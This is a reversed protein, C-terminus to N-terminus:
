PGVQYYTFDDAATDMSLYLNTRVEVSVIVWSPFPPCIATIQTPSDVTYDLAPLPGFKVSTVDVFGTGTIVVQFGGTSPGINPTLGTITLDGGIIIIGTIVTFTTATTDIYTFDDAGVNASKGGPTTVRVDVTGAGHVPAHATIQTDSDGHFDMAPVGGFTVASVGSFGTGKIIVQAGQADLACWDPNLKTITPAPPAAPKPAQTTAPAVTTPAAGITTPLPQTTSTPESTTETDVVAETTTAGLPELADGCDCSFQCGNLAFAPILLVVATLFLVLIKPIRM